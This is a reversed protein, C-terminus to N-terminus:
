FERFVRFATGGQWEPGTPQGPKDGPAESVPTLCVHAADRPEADPSRVTLRYNDGMRLMVPNFIFPYWAEERIRFGEVRATALPAVDDPRHKLDLIVDRVRRSRGPSLRVEIKSVTSYFGSFTSLIAMARKREKESINSRLRYYHEGDQKQYLNNIFQKAGADALKYLLYGDYDASRIATPVDCSFFAMMVGGDDLRGNGRYDCPEAPISGVVVPGYYRGLLTGVTVLETLIVSLVAVLSLYRGSLTLRRNCLLLLLLPAFPIFYRGQVGPISTAEPGKGMVWMLAFVSLASIAFAGAAAVRQRASLLAGDGSVAPVFLLVTIYFCPLWRPLSANLWGLQGVFQVLWYKWDWGFSAWLVKSFALPHIIIFPWNDQRPIAARLGWADLHNWLLTGGLTITAISWIICLRRLRGGFRAPPIMFLLILFSLNMKALSALPLITSLLLIENRKMVSEPNDCALKLVVAICLFSLAILFSDASLSAAQHLTMPMLSLLLFGWKLVPTIRIACYILLLWALLNLFRGTYSISLPSLNILQGIMIGPIQPLYPIPNYSDASAICFPVTEEMRLPTGFLSLIHEKKLRNDGGVLLRLESYFREPARVYSAPLADDAAPVVAGNAIYLARFWHASEDAVQFPPNIIVFITGFLLGCALFAKGPTIVPPLYAAHSLHQRLAKMLGSVITSIASKSLAIAAISSAVLLYWAYRRHQAFIFPIYVIQYRRGNVRPDTNDSTSFIINKGWHRHAGHGLRSIRRYPAHAPGLPKGNELLALNSRRPASGRDGPCGAFRYRYCYGTEEPTRSIKGPRMERTGWVLTVTGTTHLVACFSLLVCGILAICLRHRLAAMNM